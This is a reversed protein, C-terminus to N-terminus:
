VGALILDDALEKAVLVDLRGDLEVGAGLTRRGRPVVRGGDELQADVLASALIASLVRQLRATGVIRHRGSSSHGSSSRMAQCFAQWRPLRSSSSPRAAVHDALVRDVM